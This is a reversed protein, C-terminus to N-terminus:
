GANGVDSPQWLGLFAFAYSGGAIPLFWWIRRWDLIALTAASLCVGLMWHYAEGAKTHLGPVKRATMAVPGLRLGATGLAIHVILITNTAIM